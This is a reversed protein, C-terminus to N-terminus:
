KNLMEPNQLFYLKAEQLTMFNLTYDKSLTDIVESIRSCIVNFPDDVNFSGTGNAILNSSHFFMNIYPSGNAHLQRALDIMDKPVSVEPSMYIKRLLTSHWLMSVAKFHKLPTSEAVNLIANALSFNKRNFGVSAQIEMINRQHGARLVHNADPWYPGIPSGHCSFFENAYFPYVSSDVTFGRLWLQHMISESVGWRGTRFSTPQYDFETVFLSVLADLKAEVQELPLNIVHSNTENPKDFYPPNVWPHLHAGLECANQQLANEFTKNKIAGEAAAYDVFYTPRIERKQCFYQFAPIQILNEVSCNKDPLPGDWDWEEETDVTLIFVLEPKSNVRLMRAISYKILYLLTNM